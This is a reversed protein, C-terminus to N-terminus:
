PSVQLQKRINRIEEQIVNENIVKLLAGRFASNNMNSQNDLVRVVSNLVQQEVYSLKNM